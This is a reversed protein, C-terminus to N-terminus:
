TRGSESITKLDTFPAEFGDGVKQVGVRRISHGLGNMTGRASRKLDIIWLHRSFEERGSSKQMQPDNEPNNFMLAVTFGAMKQPTQGSFRRSAEGFNSGNIVSLV